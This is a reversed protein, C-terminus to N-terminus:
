TLCHIIEDSSASLGEIDLDQWLPEPKKTDSQQHNKQLISQLISKTDNAILNNAEQGYLNYILSRLKLNNDTLYNLSLITHNISGLRPSSVLFTTLGLEGILEGMSIENNLPVCLGGAGEIILYDCQKALKNISNKLHNPNIRCGEKKAALHPSAPYEFLYPAHLRPDASNFPKGVCQQHILLDKSFREKTDISVGCGTEVLKQTFVKYGANILKKAIAGTAYSKGIDTDIGTVFIITM